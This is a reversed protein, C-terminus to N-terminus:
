SNTCRIVWVDYRQNDLASLAPSSAIMWGSFAQKNTQNDFITLHAFANSSPDESPYRCENLTVKLTGYTVSQGTKLAIDSAIGNIKDLGRLQAGSADALGTMVGSEQAYVAAPLIAMVAVSLFKFIRM